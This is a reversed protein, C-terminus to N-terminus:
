MYGFMKNKNDANIFCFSPQGSLNISSGPSGPRLRKQKKSTTKRRYGEKKM